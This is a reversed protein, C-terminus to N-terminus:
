PTARNLVRARLDEWAVGGEPQSAHDKLRQRMLEHLNTEEQEGLALEILLEQVLLRKDERPLAQVAPLSEVIM